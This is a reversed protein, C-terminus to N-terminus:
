RQRRPGIPQESPHHAPMDHAVGQAPFSAEEPVSLPATARRPLWAARASVPNHGPRASEARATDAARCSGNRGHGPVYWGASNSRRCVRYPTCCRRALPRRRRGCSWAPSSAPASERQFQPAHIRSSRNLSALCDSNFVTLTLYSRLSLAQLGHCVFGSWYAARNGLM